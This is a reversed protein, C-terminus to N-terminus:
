PTVKARNRVYRTEEPSPLAYIRKLEAIEAREKEYDAILLMTKSSDPVAGNTGWMRAFEMVTIEQLEIKTKM